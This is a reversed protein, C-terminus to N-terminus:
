QQGPGGHLLRWSQYLAQLQQERERLGGRAAAEIALRYTHPSAELSTIGELYSFTQSPHYPTSLSVPCTHCAWHTELYHCAPAQTHTWAFRPTHTQLPPM